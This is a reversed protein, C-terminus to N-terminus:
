IFPNAHYLQCLFETVIPTFEFAIDHWKIYVLFHVVEAPDLTPYLYRKPWSDIQINTVLQLIEFKENKELTVSNRKRSYM